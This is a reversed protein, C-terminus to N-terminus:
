YFANEVHFLRPKTNDCGGPREFITIVIVDYRWRGSGFDKASLYARAARMIRQQKRYGVAEFGLEPIGYPQKDITRTKVEVFVIVQDPSLCIIDIEGARGARFNRILVHYGHQELFSAAMEEGETAIRKANLRSRLKTPAPAPYLRQNETM